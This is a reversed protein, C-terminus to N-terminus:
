AWQKQYASACVCVCVYCLCVCVCVCVYMCVCVCVCTYAVEGNLREEKPFDDPIPVMQIDTSGFARLSFNQTTAKEYQSIVLTYDTTGRPPALKVIYHPSNIKTGMHIADDPYYIRKGGAFVHVTIYEKNDAFDDIHTIHRSLLIWVSPESNSTVTLRFQPNREMNYSDKVPGEMQHWCHHITVRHTFLCSNWNMYIVDFFTKVSDWDIWFVGNDVSQAEKLNYKLTALLKPTWNTKDFPSYKGKWRLHSWPNKVKLLRIGDVLRLDLLAYAHSPVLGARESELNGLAGTAITLLVDGKHLAKFMRDFDKTAADKFSLREPIWGSMTHLDVGSNSGPFDYGGMVKIYAKEIISVWFEDRDDSFSCLLNGGEDVPLMDDIVVKRWVGNVFLRVFYMGFPNYIPVGQANQPYISKLILPTKFRQEFDASIALSSVFSCDSVVTQHVKDSSVSKIMRPHNSLSGIRAWRAFRTKQKPALALPGDPDIFRGAGTFAATADEEAWPLYVRGNIYSTSKV